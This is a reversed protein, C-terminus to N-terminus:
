VSKKYKEKGHWYNGTDTTRSYFAVAGHIFRNLRDSGQILEIVDYFVGAILKDGKIEEGVPAHRTM